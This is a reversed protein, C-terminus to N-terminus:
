GRLIELCRPIYATLGLVTLIFFLFSSQLFDIFTLYLVATHTSGRGKSVLDTFLAFFVPLASFFHALLNHTYFLIFHKMRAVSEAIGAQSCVCMVGGKEGGGGGSVGLSTDQM